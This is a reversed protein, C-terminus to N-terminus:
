PAEEFWHLWSKLVELKAKNVRYLRNRGQKEVSLLGADELVRLHRSITPWAHQFRKAIDSSPVVGGRFWVTLLIQRRSPHALAAFVEELEALQARVDVVDEAKSLNSRWSRWSM